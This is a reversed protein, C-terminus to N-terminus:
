IRLQRLIYKRRMGTTTSREYLTMSSAFWSILTQIRLHRRSSLRGVYAVDHVRLVGSQDYGQDCVIEKMERDGEASYVAWLGRCLRGVYRYSVLMAGGSTNENLWCVGTVQWAKLASRVRADM